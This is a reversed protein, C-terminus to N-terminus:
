WGGLVSEIIQSILAVSDSTLDVHTQRPDQSIKGQLNYAGKGDVTVRFYSNERNGSGEQMVRITLPKSSNPNQMTVKWSDNKIHELKGGYKDAIQKAVVKTAPTDGKRPGDGDGGGSGGGGSGDSHSLYMEMCRGAATPDPIGACGTSSSTDAAETATWIVAGVVAAVVVPAAAVAAAAAAAAVEAGVIDGIGAVDAMIARAAIHGTPDIWNVPNNGAYAYLHQTWPEWASGKYTDQTLFRGAQPNEEPGAKSEAVGGPRKLAERLVSQGTVLFERRTISWLSIVTSRTSSRWFSGAVSGPAYGPRQRAAALSSLGLGPTPLSVV